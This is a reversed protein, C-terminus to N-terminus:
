SNFSEPRKRGTKSYIGLGVAMAVAIAAGLADAAVDLADSTRGPVFHQHIEDTIGYLVAILVAAFGRGTTVGVLRAQALGRLLLLGLVGYGIAHLTKDSIGPPVIPGPDTSSSLIFIAAM